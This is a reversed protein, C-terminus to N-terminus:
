EWGERKVKVKVGLLGQTSTANGAQKPTFHNEILHMLRFRISITKINWSALSKLTEDFRPQLVFTTKRFMNRSWTQSSVVIRRLCSVTCFIKCWKIFFFTIESIFEFVRDFPFLYFNEVVLHLYLLIFIIRLSLLFVTLFSYKCFHM